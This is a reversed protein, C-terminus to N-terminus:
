IIRRYISPRVKNNRDRVRNNRLAVYKKLNKDYEKQWWDWSTRYADSAAIKMCAGYVLLPVRMSNPILSPKDSSSSLPTVVQTYTMLCVSASGGTSVSSRNFMLYGDYISYTNPFYNIGSLLNEYGMPTQPIGNLDLYQIQELDIDSALTVLNYMARVNEGDVHAVNVGTVGTLTNSSKGTYSIIDGQLMARGTSPFYTADVLVVSTAGVAVAGDLTTDPAVNFSVDAERASQKMTQDTFVEAYVTNLTDEVLDISVAESGAVPEHLQQLTLSTLETFTLDSSFYNTM